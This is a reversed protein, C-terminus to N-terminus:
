RISAFAFKLGEGLKCKFTQTQGIQEYTKPSYQQIKVKATEDPFVRYRVFEQVPTDDRVTARNHAYVIAEDPSPKNLFSFIVFGGEFGQSKLKSGSTQECKDLQVLSTTRQGSLLHQKLAAFQGTAEEARAFGTGSLGVAMLLFATRWRM